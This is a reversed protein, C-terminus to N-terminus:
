TKPTAALKKALSPAKELAERVAPEGMFYVLIVMVTNLPLVSLLPIAEAVYGIIVTIIQKTKRAGSIFILLALLGGVIVSAGLALITGVIPIFEILDVLDLILALQLMVLLIPLSIPNRPAEIPIEKRALEPSPVTAAEAM